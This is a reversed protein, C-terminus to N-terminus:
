VPMIYCVGRMAGTAESNYEKKYGDKGYIKEISKEVWSWEYVIDNYTDFGLVNNGPVKFDHIEIVPKIGSQAIIELEALLPNNSTWHSDVHFITRDNLESILSPLVEVTDGLVFVINSKTARLKAVNLFQENVEIALVTDFNESLWKTTGGVCCGLEVATTINFQEKLELFKSCVFVDGNFAQDQFPMLFKEGKLYQVM